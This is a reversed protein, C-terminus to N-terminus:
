GTAGRRAALRRPVSTGPKQDVIPVRVSLCAAQPSPKSSTRRSSCGPPPKVAQYPARRDSRRRARARRRRPSRARDVLQDGCPAAHHACEVRDDDHGRAVLVRRIPAQRRASARLPEVRATTRPSRRARRRGRRWRRPRSRPRRRGRARAPAARRVPRPAPAARRAPMSARRRWRQEVRATRVAQDDRGVGVRSGRRVPEGALERVRARAGLRDAAQDLEVGALQRGQGAADDRAALRLRGRPERPQTRGLGVGLVVVEGARREGHAGVDVPATPPRSGSAASSSSANPARRRACPTEIAADARRARSWTRARRRGCGGRARPRGRRRRRTRAGGSRRGAVEVERRERRELARGRDRDITGALCTAPVIPRRARARRDCREHAGPQDVLQDDDVGAGAVAGGFDGGRRARAHELLVLQQGCCPGASPLPSAIHRASCAVSRRRRRSGRRRCSRGRGVRM